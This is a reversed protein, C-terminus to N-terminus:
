MFHCAMADVRCRGAQSEFIGKADLSRQGQYELPLLTEIARKALRHCGTIDRMHQYRQRHANAPKAEPWSLRSNSIYFARRRVRCPTFAAVLRGRRTILSRYEGPMDRRRPLPPTPPIRTQIAHRAIVRRPERTLILRFHPPQARSM